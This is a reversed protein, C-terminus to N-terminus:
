TRIITWIELWKHLKQAKPEGNQSANGRKNPDVWNIRFNIRFTIKFTFASWIGFFRYEGALNFSEITSRHLQTGYCFFANVDVWGFYINLSSSGMNQFNSNQIIKQSSYCMKLSQARAQGSNVKIPHTILTKKQWPVWSQFSVKSLKLCTPLFKNKAHRFIIKFTFASWIACFDIKTLRISVKLLVRHLWNEHCFFHMLCGGLWLSYQLGM